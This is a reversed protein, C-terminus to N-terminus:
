SGLRDELVERFDSYNMNSYLKGDIVFSPTSSIGDKEANAQYWEILARAKDGDSLCAELKDNELGAIRGIKRLEDAIAADNGARAWTSQEAYLMDTIRFFREEGGCRAIISGWLGYRDFYVERYVFKVKGTDIYDAKLDNFVDSHFNACYPCTYSAYEIVEVPADLSGLIMEQVEVDGSNSEQANAAGPLAIPQGQVTPQASQSTFWWDAGSALAVALSIMLIPQKM